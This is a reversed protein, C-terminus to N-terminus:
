KRVRSRFRVRVRFGSGSGTSPVNANLAKPIQVKGPKWGKNFAVSNTLDLLGDLDYDKAQAGVFLADRPQSL